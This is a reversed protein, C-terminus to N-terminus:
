AMANVGTLKTNQRNRNVMARYLTQGDLEIDGGFDTEDLARRFARYLADGSADGDSMSYNASPSASVHFAVSAMASKVASYMTAALQSRNLVETRGGIHGVVEPGAEGAVFVSGARTTGSAYQPITSWIGNQLVGGLAQATLTLNGSVNGKTKTIVATTNIRMNVGDAIDEGILYKNFFAQSSFTTDDATLGNKSANFNAQAHFQKMGDTLGDKAKDFYAQTNFQKMAATLSDKASAMNAISTITRHKASMGTANYDQLATKMEGIANITRYKAGMGTANYDQRATKINGIATITRYKTGMGSANYDQKATKMLGIATITRHAQTMGPANYDTLTKEMKAVTDITLDSKSLHINRAAFDAVTGITKDGQPIEDKASALNAKVGNIVKKGPKIEDQILDISATAHVPIPLTRTYEEIDQGVEEINIKPISINPIIEIGLHDRFWDAAENWKTVFRESFSRVGDDAAGELEREALGRFHQWYQYEYTGPKADKFAEDIGQIYQEVQEKTKGGVPDEFLVDGIRLTLALGIAAGLIAGGVGLYKFGILGGAAIGLAAAIGNGFAAGDSVSSDFSVSSVKFDVKSNVTASGGFFGKIVGTLLGVAANWAASIFAKISQALASTDAGDFFDKIGRAIKEGMEEWNYSNLWDTAEGIAGRFFDGISKGILKWDATEFAGIILDGIKSPWQVITRGVTEFDIQELANNLFTAIKAGINNFNITDLTWYKTTFWANIFGGVKAGMGAFDIKDILENVKNGLIQGLGQWDSAEVAARISDAFDKLGEAFETTEEFMGAYDTGGGGGGGSKPDPLVNLEDFPALYELAKKAAGGAGGAAEEYENAKKIAKNWSGGGGLLAFLQNIVNILAVVKDIVFDIAPALMSILPAAMAGISNKMYGLSSSLGDMTQAFNKGNVIAGGFAKSWQYLNKVGEQFAQTIERIISRIIRYGLIRKFKSAIDGLGKAVGWIKEGFKKIPLTALKVGFKAFPLAAKKAHEALFKFGTATKKTGNATQNGIKNASSAIMNISKAATELNSFDITSMQRLYDTMTQFAEAYASPDNAMKGFMNGIGTIGRLSKSLADLKATNLKNIVASFRKIESSAAKLGLDSIRIGQLKSLAKRLRDISVVASTTDSKIAFEIGNLQVDPM